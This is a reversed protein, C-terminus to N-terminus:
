RFYAIPVKESKPIFYSVCLLIYLRVATESLM